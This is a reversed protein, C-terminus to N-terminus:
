VCLQLINPKDYLGKKFRELFFFGFNSIVRTLPTKGIVLDSNTNHVIEAPIREIIPPYIQGDASITLLTTICRKEWGFKIEYINKM